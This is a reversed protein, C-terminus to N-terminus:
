KFYFGELSNVIQSWDYKDAYIKYYDKEKRNQILKELSDSMSQEDLDCIVGNNNDSILDKSANNPHNVTLVPLGCANAELVVMGFGERSSPFAFVQSSYMLSYLENNDEIFGTFLINKILGLDERLKMLRNREPGDGVIILKIDSIKEKLIKISKILVDINKNFALRGAYFIDSEERGSTINKFISVDLGNTITIVKNKRHLMTLIQSSTVESVSIITDPLFVAIQEVLYGIFGIKGLYENWYKLGWVEHWTSYFPVQKIWTIIRIPFISFYPFGCCDIVEFDEFLLKFTSLGFFIAQSISRKGDSKYLPYNKCIGHMTLGDHKIVDSGEWSKMGYMHVDYGRESLRKAIEYFRREAGGKIYPYIADYVFAIKKSSVSM